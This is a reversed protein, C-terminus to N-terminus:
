ISFVPNQSPTCLHQRPNALQRIHLFTPVFIPIGVEIGSAGLLVKDSITWHELEGKNGPANM